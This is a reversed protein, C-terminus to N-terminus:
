WHWASFLYDSPFVKWMWESYSMFCTYPLCTWVSVKNPRLNKQQASFSPSFCLVCLGNGFADKLWKLKVNRSSFPGLSPPTLYLGRGHFTFPWIECMLHGWNPHTCFCPPPSYHWLSLQFHSLKTELTDQPVVCHLWSGASVAAHKYIKLCKGPGYLSSFLAIEVRCM